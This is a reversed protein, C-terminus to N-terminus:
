TLAGELVDERPLRNADAVRAAGPAFGLAPGSAGAGRGDVFPDLMIGLFQSGLQFAGQQAGTAAEGSPQSLATGLNGGTLGFVSVFSPPLTGGSNFFSNLANAVNRQNGSLGGTGLSAPAPREALAEPM